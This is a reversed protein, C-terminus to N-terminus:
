RGSWSGGMVYDVKFDHSLSNLLVPPSSTASLTAHTPWVTEDAETTQDLVLQWRPEGCDCAAVLANVFSSGFIAGLLTAIAICWRQRSALYRLVQLSIVRMGAGKLVLELTTANPRKLYLRGMKIGSVDRERLGTIDHGRPEALAHM